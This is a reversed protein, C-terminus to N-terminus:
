EDEFQEEDDEYLDEPYVTNSEDWSYWYEVETRNGNGLFIARKVRPCASGQFDIKSRRLHFGGCDDCPASPRESFIGSEILAKREDSTLKAVM